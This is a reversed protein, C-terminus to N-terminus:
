KWQHAAKRILDNSATAPLAEANIADFRAETSAVLTPDSTTHGLTTAELYAMPPILPGEALTFAGQLGAASLSIMPIVHVSINLREGATLLHAMQRAMVAESGLPRLLVGEDLIVRLMPGGKASLIAQRELRAIVHADVQEHTAGPAASLIARAYEETQLLGPVILPQWTRLLRASREVEVWRLFWAPLRAAQESVSNWVALLAGEADLIEDAKRVFEENASREGREVMGVMSGSVFLQEGLERQRLNAAERYERLRIGFDARPQIPPNEQDINLNGM